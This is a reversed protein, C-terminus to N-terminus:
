LYPKKEREPNRQSAASSRIRIPNSSSYWHPRSIMFNPIRDSVCLCRRGCTGESRRHISKM